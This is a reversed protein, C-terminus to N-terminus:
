SIIQKNLVSIPSGDALFVSTPTTALPDVFQDGYVERVNCQFDFTRVPHINWKPHQVEYASTKSDSIRTYGWYHETIFEEESGVAIAQKHLAASAQLYNWERVQGGFRKAYAHVTSGTMWKYEVSLDTSTTSFTHSMRRTEYHEHYLTNAIFTIMFRPVLEKIFVVGRRWEGKEKYRVYFRLNVEQFNTHFPIRMGKVATDKFLFGVLSVYHNGNWDDLETFAPKYPALIKKDVHFNAMLLNIWSANLFPRSM